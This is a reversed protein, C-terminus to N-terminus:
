KFLQINHREEELTAIRQNALKLSARVEECFLALANVADPIKVQSITASDDLIGITGIPTSIGRSDVSHLEHIGYSMEYPKITVSGSAIAIRAIKKSPSTIQVYTGELGDIVINETRKVTVPSGFVYFLTTKKANIKM